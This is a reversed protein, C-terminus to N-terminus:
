CRAALSRKYPGRALFRTVIVRWGGYVVVMAVATGGLTEMLPRSRSSLEAIRNAMRRFESVASAMRRRMDDELDFSKVVRIGQSTEQMIQLIQTFGRFQRRVV